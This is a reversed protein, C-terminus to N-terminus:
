LAFVSVPAQAIEWAAAFHFWGCSQFALSIAVIATQIRYWGGGHHQQSCTLGDEGRERERERERERKTHNINSSSQFSKGSKKLVLFCGGGHSIANEKHFGKV